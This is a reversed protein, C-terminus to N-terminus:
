LIRMLYIATVAMMSFSLMNAKASDASGVLIPKETKTPKNESTPEVPLTKSGPPASPSSDDDANHQGATDDFKGEVGKSGSDHSDGSGNDQGFSKDGSNKEDQGKGQVTTRSGLTDLKTAQSNDQPHPRDTTGPQHSTAANGQGSGETPAIVYGASTYAPISDTPFTLTATQTGQGGCKDCKVVACTFGRPPATQIPPPACNM